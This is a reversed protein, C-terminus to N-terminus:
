ARTAAARGVGTFPHASVDVRWSAQEVGLRRLSGAVAVQQADVPVALTRRPSRM